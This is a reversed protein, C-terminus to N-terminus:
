GRPDDCDGSRDLGNAETVRRDTVTDCFGFVGM